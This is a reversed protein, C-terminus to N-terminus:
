GKWCTKSTKKCEYNEKEVTMKIGRGLLAPCGDIEINDTIVIYARARYTTGNDTIYLKDPMVGTIKKTGSVTKIYFSRTRYKKRSFYFESNNEFLSKDALIVGGGSGDTLVACTDPVATFICSSGGFFAEVTCICKPAYARKILAEYLIAALVGGILLMRAVQLPTGSSLEIHLACSMGYVAGAFLFSIAWFRICVDAIIRVGAFRVASCCMLVSVALKFPISELVYFTGTLVTYIGGFLAAAAIYFLRIRASSGRMSAYLILFDVCFNDIIILEIYMM